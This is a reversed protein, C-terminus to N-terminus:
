SGIRGWGFSGKPFGSSSGHTSPGWSTRDAQAQTLDAVRAATVTTGNALGQVSVDDGVKVSGIGNAGYVGTSSGVSYAQSFGDASKV